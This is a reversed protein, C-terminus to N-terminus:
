RFIKKLVDIFFLVPDRKFKRLKRYLDAKKESIGVEELSQYHLELVTDHILPESHINEIFEEFVMKDTLVSAPLLKSTLYYGRLSNAGDPMGPFSVKKGLLIAELGSTFCESIVEESHYALRARRESLQGMNTKTIINIDNKEFLAPDPKHLIEFWYNSLLEVQFKTNVFYQTPHKELTLCSYLCCDLTSPNLQFYNDSISIERGLFDFVVDNHVVNKLIVSLSCFELGELESSYQKHMDSSFFITRKRHTKAFDFIKVFYWKYKKYINYEPLILYIKVSM